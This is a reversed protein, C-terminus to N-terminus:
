SNPRLKILGWAGKSNKTHAFLKEQAGYFNLISGRYREYKAGKGKEVNFVQLFLLSSM